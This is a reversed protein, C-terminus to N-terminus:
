EVRGSWTGEAIQQVLDVVSVAHQAPGLTQVADLVIFVTRQWRAARARFAGFALETAVVNLKRHALPRINPAPQLQQATRAPM